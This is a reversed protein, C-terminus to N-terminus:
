RCEDYLGDGKNACLNFILTVDVATVDGPLQGIYELLRQAEDNGVGTSSLSLLIEVGLALTLNGANYPFFQNNVGEDVAVVEDACRDTHQHKRISDLNDARSM